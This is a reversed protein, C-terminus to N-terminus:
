HSLLAARSVRRGRRCIGLQVRHRCLLRRTGVTGRNRWRRSTGRSRVWGNIGPTWSAWNSIKMARAGSIIARRVCATVCLGDCVAREAAPMRAQVVAMPKLGPALYDAGSVENFRRRRRDM